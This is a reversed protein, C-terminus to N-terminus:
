DALRARVLLPDAPLRACRRSLERRLKRESLRGYCFPAGDLLVGPPFLVGNRRALLEGQASGLDAHSILLSFERSLRVLIAKAQDCFACDAQTLVVVEIQACPAHPASM